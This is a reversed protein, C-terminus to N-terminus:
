ENDQSCTEGDPLNDSSCTTITCDPENSECLLARCTNDTAPDCAPIRSANRNLLKYTTTAGDEETRLFCNETDQDCPVQVEIQYDRAVFIKWYTYGVSGAILTVM